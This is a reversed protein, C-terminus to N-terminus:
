GDHLSSRIAMPYLPSSTPTGVGHRRARQSEIQALSRGKALDDALPVLPRKM